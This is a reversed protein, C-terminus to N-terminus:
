DNAKGSAVVNIITPAIRLSIEPPFSLL